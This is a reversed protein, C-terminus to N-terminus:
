KISRFQYKETNGTRQSWQLKSLTQKQKSEGLSSVLTPHNIEIGFFNLIDCLEEHCM